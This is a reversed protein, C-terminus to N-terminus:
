VSGIMEEAAAMAHCAPDEKARKRRELEELIKNSLKKSGFSPICSSGKAALGTQGHKFDWLGIGIVEVIVRKNLKKYTSTPQGREQVAPSNLFADRASQLYHPQYIPGRVRM